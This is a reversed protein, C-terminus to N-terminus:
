LKNEKLVKIGLAGAGKIDSSLIDRQRTNEYIQM